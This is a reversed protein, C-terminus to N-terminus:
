ELFFVTSVLVVIANSVQQEPISTVVCVMCACSADGGGGALEAGAAVGVVPGGAAAGDIQLTPPM